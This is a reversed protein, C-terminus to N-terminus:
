TGGGKSPTVREALVEWYIGRNRVNEASTIRFIENGMVLKMTTDVNLGPIFRFRFLATAESFAARNAWVETGHRDERYVRLSAIVGETERGFADNDTKIVTGVLDAFQNMKGFSVDDV